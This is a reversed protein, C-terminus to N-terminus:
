VRIEDIEQGVARECNKYIVAAESMKNSLRDAEQLLVDISGKDKELKQLYIKKSQGEWMGNLEAMISDLKAVTKKIGEMKERVADADQELTNIKVEIINGM